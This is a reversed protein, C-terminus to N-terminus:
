AIVAEFQTLTAGLHEMEERARLGDDPKLNIAGIADELVFTAYRHQLADKVTNFVCYETAVGGIFLRRIGLEQLLAHLQTGTFASYADREVTTAKSIVQTNIPFEIEPHFAAGATTAICHPPWPGGQQRFSCHDPPHWDRTAFILLGDEHFLKLYRNIVPILIDAMPVALSGGPLFDNQMDIIVLADGSNLKVEM